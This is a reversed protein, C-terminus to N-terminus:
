SYSYVIRVSTDDDPATDFTVTKTGTVATYDDTPVKVGAPNTVLPFGTVTSSDTITFETEIGDGDFEEVRCKGPVDAIYDAGGEMTVDANGDVARTGSKTRAKWGLIVTTYNIQDDTDPDEFQNILNIKNFDSVSLSTTTAVALGSLRAIQVLDRAVMTVSASFEAADYVTKKVDYGLESVKEEAKEETPDINQIGRLKRWIGGTDRVWAAIEPGRYAGLDYNLLSDAM